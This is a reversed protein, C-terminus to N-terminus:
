LNKTVKKPQSNTVSNEDKENLFQKIKKFLYKMNGILLGTCLFMAAPIGCLIQQLITDAELLGIFCMLCLTACIWM